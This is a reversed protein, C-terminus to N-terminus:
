LWQACQSEERKPMRGVMEMVPHRLPGSQSTGECLYEQNQLSICQRTEAEHSWKSVYEILEPTYDILEPIYDFIQNWVRQDDLLPDIHISILGLFHSHHHM